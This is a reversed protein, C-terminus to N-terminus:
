AKILFKCIIKLAVSYCGSHPGSEWCAVGSWKADAIIATDEPFASTWVKDAMFNVSGRALKTTQEKNTAAQSQWIRFGSKFLESNATSGNVLVQNCWMSARAAARTEISARLADAATSSIVVAIGSISLCHLVEGCM